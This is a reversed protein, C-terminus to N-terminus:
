GFSMFRNEEVRGYFPERCIVSLFCRVLDMCDSNGGWRRRHIRPNGRDIRNGLFNGGLEAHSKM